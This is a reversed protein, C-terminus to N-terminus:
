GSRSAPPTSGRRSRRRRAGAGRRPHRELVGARPEGRTSDDAADSVVTYFGPSLAPLEKPVRVSVAAGPEIAGAARCDAVPVRARLRAAAVVAEDGDVRQVTWGPEWGGRGANAESMAAALQPDTSEPEPEGWRAEVPGGTATSRCTSSRAYARCSIRTRREADSGRRDQTLPRSRRGRWAYRTPGLIEVADLASAVQHRYRNM